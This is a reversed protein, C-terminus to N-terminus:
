PSANEGSHEVIPAQQWLGAPASAGLRDLETTMLQFFRPPLKNRWGWNWVTQYNEGTLKQVAPYGGLTEIVEKATALHNAM